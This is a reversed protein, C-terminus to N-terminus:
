KIYLMMLLPNDDTKRSKQILEFRSKLEPYKLESEDLTSFVDKRYKEDIVDSPATFGIKTSLQSISSMNQGGDIDNVLFSRHYTLKESDINYKCIFFDDSGSSNALSCKFLICNQNIYIDNILIKGSIESLGNKSLFVENSLKRDGLDIVAFPNIGKAKHITYLTDNYFSKHYFNGDYRTSVRMGSKLINSNRGYTGSMLNPSTHLIKKNKYDYVIIEYPQCAQGTPMIEAIFIMYDSNIDELSLSYFCTSFQTDKTNDLNIQNWNSGEYNYTSMKQKAREKVIIRNNDKDICINGIHVYEKPGQGRSGIKGTFKGTTVDFKLISNPDGLFLDNEVRLTFRTGYYPLLCESTTELQLYGISDVFESLKLPQLSSIDPPAIKIHILSTGKKIPISSTEKKKDEASRCSIICVSLILLYIYKEM